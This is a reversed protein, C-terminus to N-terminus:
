QLAVVTFGSLGLFRLCKDCFPLIDQTPLSGCPGDPGVRQSWAAVFGAEFSKLLSNGIIAERESTEVVSCM